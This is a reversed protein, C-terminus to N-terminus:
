MGSAGNEDDGVEGVEGSVGEDVGDVEGNVGEDGEDGEDVEGNVGEGAGDKNEFGTTCFGIGSLGTTGKTAGGGFLLTGCAVVSCTM